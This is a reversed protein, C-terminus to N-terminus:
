ADIQTPVLFSFTSGQGKASKINLKGGHKAIFSNCLSLGLGSGREGNTGDLHFNINENLVKDVEEQSMGVGEDIVSFDVKDEQITSVIKITSGPESFKISNSVLNRLVTMLMNKDGKFSVPAAEVKLKIDKTKALHDLQEICANIIENAELQDIKPHFMDDNSRTWALLTELLSHTSDVMPVFKTVMQEISKNDLLQYHMLHTFNKLNGVSDRLDHGIISLLKKISRNVKDLRRMLELNKRHERQKLILVVVSVVLLAFAVVSWIQFITRQKALNKNSLETDELKRNQEDFAYKARLTKIVDEKNKINISDSYAQELRAYSLAKKYNKKDSYITRLLEYGQIFIDHNQLQENNTMSRNIFALSSDVDGNYYYSRGIAYQENVIDYLLERAKYQELARLGEQISKEYEKQSYYLYSLGDLNYARIIDTTDNIYSCSLEYYYHASDYQEFDVFNGAMNSYDYAITLSDGELLNYKVAERDYNMSLSDEGMEAYVTALRSYCFGLSYNDDPEVLALANTVLDIAQRYEGAISYVDGLGIYSYVLNSTDNEREALEQLKLYYALAEQHSKYLTEQGLIQYNLMLKSVDTETQIAKKLSDVIADRDMANCHIVM